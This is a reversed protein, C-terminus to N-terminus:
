SRDPAAPHLLALRALRRPPCSGSGRPTPISAQNLGAAVARFSSRRRGSTKRHHRGCGQGARNARAKLSAGGANPDVGFVPGKDSSGRQDENTASIILPWLSSWWPVRLRGGRGGTCRSRLCGRCPLRRALPCCIPLYVVQDDVLERAPYGIGDDAEAAEHPESVAVIRHGAIGVAGRLSSPTRQEGGQERFRTVHLVRRRCTRFHDLM